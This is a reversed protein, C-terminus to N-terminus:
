DVGTSMDVDECVAVFTEVSHAARGEALAVERMEVLGSGVAGSTVKPDSLAVSLASGPPGSDVREEM